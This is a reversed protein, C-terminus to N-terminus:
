LLDVERARALAQTRSNVDLKRYLNNIHTKVTGLGVILRQAIERNSLGEAILGLVERERDSLPEVLDSIVPQQTSIQQEPPSSDSTPFAALLKDVYPGLHMAHKEIQVRFDAILLRMPEGEDVFIRVYGEPEALTLARALTELADTSNGCAYHALSQLALIEIVARLRGAQEAAALLRNLLGM